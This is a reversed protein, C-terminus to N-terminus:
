LTALQEQAQLRQRRASRISQHVEAAAGRYRRAGTAAPQKPCARDRRRSRPGGGRPLMALMTSRRDARDAVEPRGARRVRDRYVDRAGGCRAPDAGCRCRADASRAVDSVRGGVSDQARAERRRLGAMSHAIWMRAACRRWVYPGLEEHRVAQACRVHRDRDCLDGADRRAHDGPPGHRTRWRRLRDRFSAPVFCFPARARQLQPRHAVGQGCRNLGSRRVAM